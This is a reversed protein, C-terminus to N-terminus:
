TGTRELSRLNLPRVAGMWIAYDRHDMLANGTNPHIIIVLAGRNLALFSVIPQFLESPFEIQFSGDPHPGVPQDHWRGYVADPFRIELHSRLSEAFQKSVGDYYIHAHYNRIDELSKM